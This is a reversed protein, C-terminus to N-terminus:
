WGLPHLTPRPPPNYEPKGPQPSPLSTRSRGRSQSLRSKRRLSRRSQAPCLRRSRNRHPTESTVEARKPPNPRVLTMSIAMRSPQGSRPLEYHVGFILFGHILLASLLAILLSRPMADRRASLPKEKLRGSALM